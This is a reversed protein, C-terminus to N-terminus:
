AAAGDGAIYDALRPTVDRPTRRIGITKLLRRQVGIASLYGPLDVDEGAVWRAEFDEVLAGLVAARQVLQRQGTTLHDQGGLDTTLADILAAARRAATTRNDLDALTRLTLKKRRHPRRKPAPAPSDAPM